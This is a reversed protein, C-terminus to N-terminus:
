IEPILDSTIANGTAGDVNSTYEQYVTGSVLVTKGSLQFRLNMIGDVEGLANALVILKDIASDEAKEIKKVLMNNEIGFLEIFYTVIATLLGTGFTSVATITGVEKVNELQSATINM